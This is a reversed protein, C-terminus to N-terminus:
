NYGFGSLMTDVKEDIVSQIEACHEYLNKSEFLSLTERLDNITGGRCWCKFAEMDAFGKIFNYPDLLHSKENTPTM